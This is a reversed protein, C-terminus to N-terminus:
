VPRCLYFFLFLFEPSLLCYPTRFSKVVNFNVRNHKILPCPTYKLINQFFNTKGKLIISSHVAGKNMKISPVLNFLLTIRM